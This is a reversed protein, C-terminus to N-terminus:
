GEHIIDLGGGQITRLVTTVFRHPSKDIRPVHHSMATAKLTFIDGYLIAANKHLEVKHLFNYMKTWEYQGRLLARYKRTENSLGDM